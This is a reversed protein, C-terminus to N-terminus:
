PTSRERDDSSDCGAGWDGSELRNLDLVGTRLALLVAHTLNDTDLRTYAAALHNRVTKTTVGLQAGVQGITYGDVIAQLVQIQRPSLVPRGRGAVQYQRASEGEAPLPWLVSLPTEWDPEAHMKM